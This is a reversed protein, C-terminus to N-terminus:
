DAPSRRVPFRLVTAVVDTYETVLFTYKSIALKQKLNKQIGHFNLSIYSVFYSWSTGFNCEGPLKWQM